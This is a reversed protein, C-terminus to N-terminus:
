IIKTFNDSINVEIPCQELIEQQRINVGSMRIPGRGTSVCVKDSVNEYHVDMRFNNQIDIINENDNHEHM